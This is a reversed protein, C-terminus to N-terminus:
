YTKTDNKKKKKKEKNSRQRESWENNSLTKEAMCELKSGAVNEVGGDNCIASGDIQIRIKGKTHM